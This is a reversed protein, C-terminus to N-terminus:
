IAVMMRVGVDYITWIMYIMHIMHAARLPGLVGTCVFFDSDQEGNNWWMSLMKKILALKALM